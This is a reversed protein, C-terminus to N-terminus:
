NYFFILALVRSGATTRCLASSTLAFCFLRAASRAPWFLACLAARPLIPEKNRVALVAAAFAAAVATTLAAAVATAFASPGVSNFTDTPLFLNL